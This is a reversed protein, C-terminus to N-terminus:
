FAAYKSFFFFLVFCFYSFTTARPRVLWFFLYYFTACSIANSIHLLCVVNLTAPLRFSRRWKDTKKKKVKQSPKICCPEVVHFFFLLRQADKIEKEKCFSPYFLLLLLLLLLSIRADMFSVFLLNLHSWKAPSTSQWASGHVRLMTQM